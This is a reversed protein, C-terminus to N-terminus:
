KKCTSNTKLTAVLQRKVPRADTVSITKLRLAKNKSNQLNVITTPLTLDAKKWIILKLLVRETRVVKLKDDADFQYPEIPGGASKLNREEITKRRL